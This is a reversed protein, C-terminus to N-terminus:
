LKNLKKNINNKVVFENYAKAAELEFKYSGIYNYKGNFYVSSEWKQPKKKFSVGIFKSTRKKTIDINEWGPITNLKAKEKYLEKAKHNYAIAAHLEEKFHGIIIGKGNFRITSRYLKQSKIFSVGLFKSSSNHSKSGLLKKSIKDKTKQTIPERKSQYAKMKLKAEESKARGLNAESIKKSVQKKIEDPINKHSIRQKQKTADSTIKGLLKISNAKGIKNKTEETLVRGTTGEGGDTSNVLIGLKKDARGFLKIYFKESFNCLKENKCIKVLEIKPSLGEKKLSNIWNTKHTKSKDTLHGNILRYNLSKTTKGVYRIQNNRPDKLFYIKYEM